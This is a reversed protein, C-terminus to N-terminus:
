WLPLHAKCGICCGCSPALTPHPPPSSPSFTSLPPLPPPHLDLGVQLPCDSARLALVEGHLRDLPEVLLGARQGWMRLIEAQSLGQGFPLWHQAPVTAFSAALDSPAQLDGSVATKRSSTSLVLQCVAKHLISVAYQHVPSVPICHKCLMYSCFCM